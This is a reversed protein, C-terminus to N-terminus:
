LYRKSGYKINSACTEKILDVGLEGCLANVRPLMVADSERPILLRRNEKVFDGIIRDYLFAIRTTEAKSGEGGTIGVNNRAV